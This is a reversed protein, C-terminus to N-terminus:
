ERGGAITPVIEVIDGNTLPHRDAGHLILADNVAFNYLSDEVRARFGPHHRDLAAVLQGITTVGEEVRIEPAGDPQRLAVPLRVVIM